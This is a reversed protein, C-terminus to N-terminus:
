QNLRSDNPAVQIVASWPQYFTGYDRREILNGNADTITRTVIVDGGEKPWDVQLQQGPLLNANAEYVPQPPQTVNRLIPESVSVMRGPNTSYLRFELADQEPLYDTEILLHYETDNLFKFDATPTFIAADMGPGLGDLEYYGVRYGHSYREVIPYGGFFAARYVTTSVQCVGGGIGKVTRGGFIIAGEVFGNEESIDGVLENFSFTENPAIIVGNYFSAANEINQKRAATSGTYLTRSSSVLETIGLEAATVDNHYPPLITDFALPVIRNDVSFVAAEMRAVTEATNLTRGNVAPELVDLERTEDNFVFRGNQPPIILGPALTELTANFASMDIQVDYRGIGDEGSIYEISLLAAIQEPAITWPGLPNGAADTATLTIPAAIATRIYAAAAEVDAVPPTVTNVTLPIEGGVDLSVIRAQLARLAADVDLVIGAQAPTTEVALGNLTLQPYQPPQGIDAAIQELIVHATNEDYRVVPEVSVGQLWASAQAMLNRSIGGGHGVAYAVNATAEADLAVGLDAATHQWYQDNYRFTFVTENPYTFASELTTTAEAPSLGGLHVGYAFVGPVIRGTAGVQYVILAFVLAMATFIGGFVLLLPIRVLWPSIGSQPQPPTQGIPNTVTM